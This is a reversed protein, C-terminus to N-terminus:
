QNIALNDFISFVKATKAKNQWHQSLKPKNQQEHIKALLEYISKYNHHSLPKLIQECINLYHRQKDIEYLAFYCNSLLLSLQLYLTLPIEELMLLSQELIVVAQNLFFQKEKSTQSIHALEFRINARTYALIPTNNKLYEADANNLAEILQKVNKNM